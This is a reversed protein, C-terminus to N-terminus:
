TSIVTNQDRPKVISSLKEGNENYNINLLELIDNSVETLQEYTLFEIFDNVNTYNFENNTATQNHLVRATDLNKEYNEIEALIDDGEMLLDELEPDKNNENNQGNSIIAAEIV